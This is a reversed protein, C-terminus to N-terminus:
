YLPTSFNANAVEANFCQLAADENKIIAGEADKLYDSYHSTRWNEIWYGNKDRFLCLEGNFPDHGEAILIDELEDQNKAKNNAM